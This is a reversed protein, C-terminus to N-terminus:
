KNIGAGLQEDGLRFHLERGPSTPNWGNMLALRVAREVLGPSVVTGHDVWTVMRQGPNQFREVVIGLGPEDDPAVVWRYACSDVTIRRTGKERLTM